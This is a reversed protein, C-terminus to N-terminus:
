NHDVADYNQLQEEFKSLLVEFVPIIEASCGFSGSKSHGKLRKTATKLPGLVNIYKTIVAYDAAILRDSRM